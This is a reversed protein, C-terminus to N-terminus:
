RRFRAHFGRKTIKQSFLFLIIVFYIYEVM